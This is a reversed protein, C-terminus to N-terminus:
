LWHEASGRWTDVAIVVGDCGIDRMRRAMTLVSAGKWVGVEIVIDPRRHDIADTLYRHTSNWGQIDPPLKPTNAYPDVDRWIKHLIEDRVLTM